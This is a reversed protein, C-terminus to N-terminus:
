ESKESSEFNFASHNAYRDLYKEADAQGMYKGLTNQSVKTLDVIILGDIAQNFDPDINFCVFRGNFTLYQRILVPLSRGNELRSVLNSLLQLDALGTLLSLSWFSKKSVKVPNIAKVLKASQQDYYHTTLCQIILQHTLAKYEGSISVPGFLTQYHPNRSIYTAIGKWLMLLPTLSKQYPIDIVSRGMEIATKQNNIFSEDFEFLTRSYLGRIGKDALIQDVLGLRYAGVIANKDNDWIFLHLYHQDFDDIDISKNTGEGVARFSRERIIGIQTLIPGMEDISSIYTSFQQQQHLLANEPLNQVASFLDISSVDAQITEETSKSSKVHTQTKNHTAQNILYTNLRLYKTIEEANSLKKIENHAILSGGTISIPKGQKNLLERGLMLTRLLPHVKGALYFPKSNKGDIFIPLCNANHNQALKGALRNWKKDQLQNNKDYTSVEGAPFILLAGQNALHRNAHKIANLNARIADKGEFVNVGIFLSDLEPIRKLLHNAMVLLDPRFELLIHALIVGEVGGLPHNAVIVLPGSNPINAYSLNSTTYEIGLSNLTHSLFVNTDQVNPRKTYHKHLKSLGTIREIVPAFWKLIATRPLLFPANSPLEKNSSELSHTM